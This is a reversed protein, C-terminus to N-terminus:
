ATREIGIQLSNLQAATWASSTTPNNQIVIGQNNVFVRSGTLNLTNSGVESGGTVVFSRVSSDSYPSPRYQGYTAIGVIQVLSTPVPVDTLSYIDKDNIVKAHVNNPSDIDPNTNVMSFNTSGRAPIWDKDVTDADPSLQSIYVAGIREGDSIVFNDYGSIGPSTLWGSIGKGISVSNINQYAVTASLAPVNTQTGVSVGDLYLTYSMTQGSFTIQLEIHYWRNVEMVIGTSYITGRARVSMIMSSEICVQVIDAVATANNNYLAFINSTNAFRFHSSICLSTRTGVNAILRNGDTNTTPFQLYNGPTMGPIIIGPSIFTFGNFSSPPLNFNQDITFVQATGANVIPSTRYRDFGDIFIIAM